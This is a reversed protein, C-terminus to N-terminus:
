APSKGEATQHKEQSQIRMIAVSVGLIAWFTVGTSITTNWTMLQLIYAQMGDSPALLLVIPHYIVFSRPFAIARFSKM